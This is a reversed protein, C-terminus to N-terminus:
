RPPASRVVPAVGIALLILVFAIGILIFAQIRESRVM